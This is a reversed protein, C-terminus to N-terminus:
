KKLIFGISGTVESFIGDAIGIRVQPAVFVRDSLMFRVGGGTGFGAEVTTQSFSGFRTTHRTVGPGGYWYPVIKRDRHRFDFAINGWLISNIDTFSGSKDRAHIFEPEVSWRRSFYIRLGGGVAAEVVAGDDAFVMAGATFRAQVHQAAAWPILALGLLLFRYM